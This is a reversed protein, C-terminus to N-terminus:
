SRSCTAPWIPQETLRPLACRELCLRYAVQQSSPSAAPRSSATARLCGLVRCAAAAVPEPESAALPALATIIAHAGNAVVIADAAGDVGADCAAAVADTSSAHEVLAHLATHVDLATNVARAGTRSSAASALFFLARLRAAPAATDDALTRQM